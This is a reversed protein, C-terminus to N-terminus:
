FLSGQRLDRETAKWTKSQAAHDLWLTAYREPGGAHEVAGGPLFVSRYGTETIPLPVRPRESMVELHCHHYTDTPTAHFDPTYVVIISIGRWNLHYQEIPRKSQNM